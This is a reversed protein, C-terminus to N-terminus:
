LLALRIILAAVIVTTLLLLARVQNRSLRM